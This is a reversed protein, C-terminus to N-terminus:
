SFELSLENDKEREVTPAGQEGQLEDAIQAAMKGTLEIEGGDKYDIVANTGEANPGFEARLGDEPANELKSLTEVAASAQEFEGSLGDAVTKLTKLDNIHVTSGDALHLVADSQLDENPEIDFTDAVGTVNVEFNQYADPNENINVELPVGNIEVVNNDGVVRNIAQEMNFSSGYVTTEHGHQNLDNSIKQKISRGIDQDYITKDPAPLDEHSDIQRVVGDNTVIVPVNGSFWGPADVTTFYGGGAPISEIGGLQDAVAEHAENVRAEDVVFMHAKAFHQAM